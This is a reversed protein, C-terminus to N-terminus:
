AHTRAVPSIYFTDEDETYYTYYQFTDLTYIYLKQRLLHEQHQTWTQKYYYSPQQNINNSPAYVDPAAQHNNVHQHWATQPFISLATGGVFVTVAM